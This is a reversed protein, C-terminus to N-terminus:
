GTGPLCASCVWAAATRFGRLVPLNLPVVVSGEACLMAARVFAANLRFCSRQDGLGQGCLACAPNCLLRPLGERWDRM